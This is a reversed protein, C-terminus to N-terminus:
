LDLNSYNQLHYSLAIVLSVLQVTKAALFQEKTKKSRSRFILCKQSRLTIRVTSFLAGSLLRSILKVHIIYGLSFFVSLGVTENVIIGESKVSKFM